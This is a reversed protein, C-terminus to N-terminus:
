LQPVRHARGGGVDPLGAGVAVGGGAREVGVGGAVVQPHVEGAVRDELLALRAAEALRHRDDGAALAPPDPVVPAVLVDVAEGAQEDDVDPVAAGLDGLRHGLLGRLQGEERQPGVGVRSGDLEGLPQGVVRGPSRFRTKKVVPPPSATSVAQFSALCYKLSVPLGVFCLTM